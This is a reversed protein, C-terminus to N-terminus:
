VSMKKKAKEHDPVELKSGQELSKVVIVLDKWRDFKVEPFRSFFIRFNEKKVNQKILFFNVQVYSRYSGCKGICAFSTIPKPVCVPYQLIHIVPTSSCEDTASTVSRIQM